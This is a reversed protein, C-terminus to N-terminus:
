FVNHIQLSQFIIELFFKLCGLSESDSLFINKM